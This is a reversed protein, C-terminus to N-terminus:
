TSRLKGRLGSDTGIEIGEIRIRDNGTVVRDRETFLVSSRPQLSATLSDDVHVAHLSMDDGSFVTSCIRESGPGPGCNM